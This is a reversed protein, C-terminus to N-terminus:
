KESNANAQEKLELLAQNAAKLEATSEQQLQVFAEAQTATLQTESYQASQDMLRIFKELANVFKLQVAKGEPSKLNLKVVGERIKTYEAGIESFIQKRQANATPEQSQFSAILQTQLQQIKPLSSAQEVVQEFATTDAQLNKQPDSCAVMLMATLILTFFQSISKM